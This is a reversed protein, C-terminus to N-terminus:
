CLSHIPLKQLYRVGATKKYTKRLHDFLGKSTGIIVRHPVQPHDPVILSILNPNVAKFKAVQGNHRDLIAPAGDTALSTIKNLPIENETFFVSIKNSLDQGTITDLMLLLALQEKHFKQLEHDLFRVFIVLQAVDTNDTSEVM